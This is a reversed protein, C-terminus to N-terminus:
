LQMKYKVQLHNSMKMLRGILYAMGCNILYKIMKLQLLNSQMNKLRGQQKEKLIEQQFLKVWILLM